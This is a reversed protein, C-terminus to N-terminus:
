KDIKFNDWTDKGGRSKPYVHDVSLEVKKLKKGTYELYGDSHCYIFKAENTNTNLKAIAARTSM